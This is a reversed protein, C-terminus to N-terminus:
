QESIVSCVSADGSWTHDPIIASHVILCYELATYYLWPFQKNEDVRMGGNM